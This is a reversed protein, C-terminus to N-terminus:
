GPRRVPASVPSRVPGGRAAVVLYASGLWRRAGRGLTVEPHDRWRKSWRWLFQDFPPVVPTVDYHVVDVPEWGADRLLACLKRSPVARIGTRNRGHRRGAPRGFIGEVKGLLRLLPWYLGWEFMRYPSLPNLMTVLLLGDERVVRACERLGAAIDCYELVGMAVAIDFSAEPFPVNEAEGVALRVDSGRVRAAAEAIMAPSRDVVTIRFDDPRSRWLQQAFMGPGCGIDVLDGGPSRELAAMVACMRSSFYREVPGRSRYLAAYSAADAPDDFQARVLEDRGGPESRDVVPGQVAGARGDDVEAHETM